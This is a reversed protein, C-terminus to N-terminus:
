QEGKEYGIIKIENSLANKYLEVFNVQGSYLCTNNSEAGYEGTLVYRSDAIIGIHGKRRSGRYVKASQIQMPADTIIVVKKQHKVLNEIELEVETLFARDGSVYVRDEVQKLLNRVKNLIHGAGEITIYGEEDVKRCSVTSLLWKKDREAKAIFNDCFEELQVPTYKKTSNEEEIYAAGKDVLNALAAYANSRSIGTQKAAEYGSLKGAKLLCLYIVAEQRTLGFAMMRKAVRERDM